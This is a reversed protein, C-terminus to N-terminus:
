VRIGMDWRGSKCSVTLVATCVWWWRTSILQLALGLEQASLKRLMIM